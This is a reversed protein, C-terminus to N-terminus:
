EFLQTHTGIRVLKVYCDEVVYIILLDGVLIFNVLNIM